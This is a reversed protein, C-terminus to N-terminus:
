RTSFSGALLAALLFLSDDDSERHHWLGEVLLRFKFHYFRAGRKPGCHQVCQSHSLSAPPSVPDKLSCQIVKLNNILPEM